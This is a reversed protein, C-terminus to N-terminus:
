YEITVFVVMLGLFVQVEYYNCVNDPEYHRIGFVIGNSFQFGFGIRKM